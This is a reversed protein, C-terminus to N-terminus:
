VLGGGGWGFGNGMMSSETYITSTRENSQQVLTRRLILREQQKFEPMILQVSDLDMRDEFIKKATGYAIYQWWESLEPTSGSNLLEAPRKYVELTIKYAQDPVPRLTFKGDYFLLTMPRSPQYPVTQANVAQGKAPADSFNFTYAGTVYNINGMSLASNNPEILFGFDPAVPVLDDILTTGVSSFNADISSFLVQRQLIPKTPLTGSFATIIGNGKGILTTTALFPYMAFFQERSQSWLMQYGACYAAPHVTIYRNIFNYLPDEPDPTRTEYVDIYPETYFDLTSRLNFLRIHEPFDYLVFTNVYDNIQADTIQATSPSRTLRRVKTQIQALSSLNADPLPM